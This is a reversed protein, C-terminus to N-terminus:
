YTLTRRLQMGVAVFWTAFLTSCLLALGPGILWPYAALVDSAATVVGLAIYGRGYGARSMALSLLLTALAMLLRVSHLGGYFVAVILEAVDPKSLEIGYVPYVLRGHVVLMMAILATVLALLGCGLSAKVDDVPALRRYLAITGAILAGDAFFLLESDLSIALRHAAVWALIESGHAPPAGAVLQLADRGLFLAGAAVFAWGGVRYIKTRSDAM